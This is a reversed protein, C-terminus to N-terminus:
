TNSENTFREMHPFDPFQPDLDEPEDELDRESSICGQPCDVCIWVGHSWHNCMPCLFNTM